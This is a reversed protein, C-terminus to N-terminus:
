VFSCVVLVDFVVRAQHVDEREVQSLLGIELRRSILKHRTVSNVNSILVDLPELEIKSSIQKRATRSPRERRVQLAFPRRIRTARPTSTRRDESHENSTKLAM